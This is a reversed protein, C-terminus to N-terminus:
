SSAARRRSIALGYIEILRRYFGDHGLLRELTARAGRGWSVSLAPDQHLRSVLAALGQWDGPEFLAGNVGDTVLDPSGGIRSALVPTGLSFSEWLVYQSPQFWESPDLVALAHAVRSQLKPGWRTTTDFLVNALCHEAIYARMRDDEPGSGYLEFPVHPLAQAARLVTM